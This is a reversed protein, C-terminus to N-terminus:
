TGRPAGSGAQTAAPLQERQLLRGLRVRARHLRSKVTGEKLGTLVTLERLSYGEVDHMALLMQQDRDLYQWARELQQATDAREAAQDPEPSESAPTVGAIELSVVHRREYRRTWDVFLRYMVRIMWSHPKELAVLEELRPFARVCLEQVLDEADQQSRTWRFALRFLLAYHPRLLAEFRRADSGGGDIVTLRSM